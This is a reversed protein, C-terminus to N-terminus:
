KTLLLKSRYETAASRAQIFYVGSQMKSLDISQEGSTATAAITNNYVVRGAMDTITVAIDGAPQGQWLINVHDSAPNPMVSILDAAAYGIVSTPVWPKIVGSTTYERFSVGTKSPTAASLTITTSPTTYFSFNEPYIVYSGYALSSFSYAGTADTYTYTLVTGSADKLYIIMGAVPAEGSTGKGAGAYVYGGIFGPGSPVTGFIMNINQTNTATAGHAITTAASWTSSSLGYTPLYGSMGAVGSLLKAKVMYNGAAKGDFHYYPLSDNCTTMSDLATLSSDAPNFQVLWVECIGSTPAASTFHIHGNIRNGNVTLTTSSTCAGSGSTITYTTTATPNIYTSGCASCTLGTTPLWSYTSGGTVTGMTYESCSVASTTATLPSMSTITIIATTSATGCSTSSYSITTTGPTVGTLVGTSASITAVSTTSSTWLGGTTVDALTTTGGCSLTTSGTIPGVTAVANVTIVKMASGTGCSGTVTYYVTDAGASMGYVVGASSITAHGNTVTWVGGSTADTLAITSGVCLSSSGTIAAVSVSSAVTVVTTTTATGCATTGTFSIIATGSSTGSVTAAMSSISTVTAVAPDSSSWTGGSVPGVLTTTGGCTMSTTGTIAGITGPAIVNVAFYQYGTGCSSTYTYKVSDMGASVGTIVGTTPNITAVGTGFAMSWTGGSVTSSMTCTGGICLTGPGSITGASAGVTISRTVFCGSPISYTITTTGCSVGTVVGTSMSVTAIAPNSSSWVGGATADTLTISSGPGVSSPGSIAAPNPNVTVAAVASSSGTTYTVMALGAAYGHVVGTTSDVYASTSYSSWTGGTPTGTLTTTGGVCISLTGGITQAGATFSLLCLVAFILSTYLKKM